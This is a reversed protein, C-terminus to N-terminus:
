YEVETEFSVGTQLKLEKQLINIMKLVDEYSSEGVNEM